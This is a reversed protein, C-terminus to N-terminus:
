ALLEQQLLEIVPEVQPLYVTGFCFPMHLRGWWCEWGMQTANQARNYVGPSFHRIGKKISCTM